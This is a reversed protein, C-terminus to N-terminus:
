ARPLFTRVRAGTWAAMAGVAVGAATDALRLIPQQWAHQPSIAAVVMIVATTIGATIADGPRGLLMVALASAGVLAALAWAHFPLFALYILCLVFSVSTAAMRSFAAAVSKSFSDRMVFITALVAWMGGLLDDDRSLSYVRSLVITILWYTILCAVALAVSEVVATSAQPWRPRGSHRMPQEPTPQVAPDPASTM